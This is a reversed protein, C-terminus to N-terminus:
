GWDSSAGIAALSRVRLQVGSVIHQNFCVLAVVAVDAAAAPTGGDTLLALAAMTATLFDDLCMNRGNM